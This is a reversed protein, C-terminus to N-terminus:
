SRQAYLMDDLPSSCRGVRLNSFLWMGDFIEDSDHQSCFTSAVGGKGILDIDESAMMNREVESELVLSFVPAQTTVVLM